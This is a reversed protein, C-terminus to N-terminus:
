FRDDKLIFSHFEIVSIIIKRVRFIGGSMMSAIGYRFLPSLIIAVELWGLIHAWIPYKYSGLVVETNSVITIICM